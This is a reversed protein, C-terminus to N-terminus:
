SCPRARCRPSTPWRSPRHRARPRVWGALVVLGAAILGAHAYAALGLSPAQSIAILPLVLGIRWSSPAASTSAPPAPARAVRPCAGLVRRRGPHGDRRGGLLDLPLQRPRRAPWRHGPRLGAGIGVTASILGISTRVRDPPFEDRIIGFALPFVGVASGQLVRGAVVGAMSGALASVVNGVAFLALAVVLVRRKGFMDGLRGFIPTLVAAALLYGTFTWAVAGATSDFVGILEPLAPFLMTQGMAYAMGASGLVLLSRTAHPRAETARLATPQRAGDTHSPDRGPEVARFGLAQRPGSRDTPGSPPIRRGSWTPGSPEARDHAM